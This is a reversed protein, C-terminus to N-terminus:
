LSTIKLKKTRIKEEGLNGISPFNFKKNFDELKRKQELNVMKTRIESYDRRKELSNWYDSNNEKKLYIILGSNTQKVYSLIRMIEQCQYQLLNILDDTRAVRKHSCFVYYYENDEIISQDHVSVKSIGLLGDIILSLIIIHKM